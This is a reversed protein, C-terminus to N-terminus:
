WWYVLIIVYRNKLIVVNGRAYFCEKFQTTRHIIRFEQQPLVQNLTAAIFYFFFCRFAAGKHCLLSLETELFFNLYGSYQM